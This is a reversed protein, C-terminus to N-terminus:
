TKVEKYELPLTVTFISGKGFVSEAKITGGLIKALKQSLYLGLGTGEQLPQGETFIRSFQKFLKPMDEARIGYGTDSVSVEVNGGKIAARITLKGKDMFKVANSVLNMVIQKVRREDSRVLLKEPIDLTLKHGREELAIQFSNKIDQIADSLDFEEIALQIKEAEIKSVDIVDNILSLLHGASSKVMELQKRQEDNLEGAMGQLMIGSFGLISNLPTRLEHSMSAIFMSKMRDLERAKALELEREEARKRETIDQNITIAGNISGDSKRLPVASDLIIKHTGDFCEIEVEEEITTEGKELARAGAWEHAGILKGNDTRWGKYEGLQDIGVYKVGAWIRQVAASSTSINGKADIIWLGVPMINIAAQLLANSAQLAEEARKREELAGALKVNAYSQNGIMQAFASYFTMMAKVKERSWRPVRDLAALYEQENFGYRRAQQRFVELDPMEDDYLFQGLFINGVQRDGLMVPTAIDWMNNKCRYQKFTGAPVNRTLELDSEICFRCSEPNSRHFKTCIDQWGTGVLVKGKMDIIGIGMKTLKYLDDMLEQIKVSDIIDALELASINAEPSLIADLKRRVQKGSERLAEEAKKRESIDRGIRLVLKEGDIEILRAHVEIPFSTGDHRFHASEYSLSGKQNIEAVRGNLLQAYEPTTLKHLDQGILEGSAYGRLQEAAKNTFVIGGSLDSVIISDAAADLLMGKFEIEKEARRREANINQLSRIVPEIAGIGIVMLLSIFLGLLESVLDPPHAGGGSVFAYLTYSRRVFQIFFASALVMWATFRGSVRILRIALVVAVLQLIASTLLIFILM